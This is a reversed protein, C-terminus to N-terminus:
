INSNPRAERPLATKPRRYETPTDLTELDSQADQHTQTCIWVTGSDWALRNIATGTINAEPLSSVDVSPTPRYIFSVLKPSTLM